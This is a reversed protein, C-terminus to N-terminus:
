TFEIFYTAIADAKTNGVNGAHGKVWILEYSLWYELLKKCKAYLPQLKTDKVGWKGKLQNLVLQSDSYVHVIDTPATHERTMKLGEIMATYEMVNNTSFVFGGGISSLYETNKYLVAGYGGRGPNPRSGGDTYLEYVM